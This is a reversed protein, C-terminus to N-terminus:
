VLEYLSNTLIQKQGVDINSTQNVNPVVFITVGTKKEKKLRKKLSDMDESFTTIDDGMEKTYYYEDCLYNYILRNGNGLNEVKYFGSMITFGDCAGEYIGDKEELNTYIKKKCEVKVKFKTHSSVFCSNMRGQAQDYIAIYGARPYYAFNGPLYSGQSNSYYAASYGAYEVHLKQVKHKAPNSIMVYDQSQQFKLEVNDQTYVHKVHYGHYLTMKYVSLSRDVDMTVKASLQRGIKLEMDYASIKYDAAEIKAKDKGEMYYYQDHALTNAPNSNMIVKSAPAAYGYFFGISIIGTLLVWRIHYKRTILIGMFFLSIWFLIRSVQYFLVSEGFSFNPMFNTQVLPMINLAEVLPYITGKGNSSLSQIDAIKEPYPSVMYVILLMFGYVLIRNKIKSCFFGIVIGLEAILFIELLMNKIIHWIYEGHPDQVGYYKYGVIVTVTILCTIVFVWLTMVLFACILHKKKSGHKTTIAVEGIGNHQFRVFFEYSLFLVVLFVYFSLQLGRILPSVIWQLELNTGYYKTAYIVAGLYSLVTVMLFLKNKIFIKLTDKYLKM